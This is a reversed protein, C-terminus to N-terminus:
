RTMCERITRILEAASCPKPLVRIPAMGERVLMPDYEPCTGSVVVIPMNLLRIEGRIMRCLERGTLVPMSNDTVLCDFERYQLLAWAEQGNTVSVVKCGARQLQTTAMKRCVDDDDAVLVITGELGEMLRIELTTLAGQRVVM